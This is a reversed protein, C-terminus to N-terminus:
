TRLRARLRACTKCIRPPNGGPPYYTNEETFEHGRTCTNNRHAIMCALKNSRIMNAKHTSPKVHDPNSCPPYDCVVHDLELGDPVPGYKQEYSWVHSLILRWKGNRLVLFRGYGQPNTAATWRWCGNPMVEIKMFFREEETGKHNNHGHVFKRHQGKQYGAKSEKQITIRTTIGCGCACLGDM